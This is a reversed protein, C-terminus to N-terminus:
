VGRVESVNMNALGKRSRHYEKLGKASLTRRKTVWGYRMYREWTAPHLRTVWNGQDDVCVGDENPSGGWARDMGSLGVGAVVEGDPLGDLYKWIVARSGGRM